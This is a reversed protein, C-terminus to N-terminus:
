VLVVKVLLYSHKSVISDLAWEGCVNPPVCLMGRSTRRRDQRGGCFDDDDDMCMSDGGQCVGNEPVDAVIGGGGGKFRGDFVDHGTQRADNRRQDRRKVGKRENGSVGGFRLAKSSRQSVNNSGCSSNSGASSPPPGVLDAPPGESGWGLDVEGATSDRPPLDDEPAIKKRPIPIRHREAPDGGSKGSAAAAGLAGGAKAGTVEATVTAKQPQIPLLSSASSALSTSVKEVPSVTPRPSAPLPGPAVFNASSPPVIRPSFGLGGAGGVGGAGIGRLRISDRMRRDALSERVIEGGLDMKVVPLPEGGGKEGAWGGPSVSADARGGGVPSAEKSWKRPSPATAEVGGGVSASEGPPAGGGITVTAAGGGAGAGASDVSRGKGEAAANAEALRLLGGGHEYSQPRIMAAAKAKSYRASSELSKPRNWGVVDIPLAVARSGRGPVQAGVEVPAACDKVPMRMAAQLPTLSLELADTPTKREIETLTQQIAEKGEGKAIREVMDGSTLQATALADLSGASRMAKCFDSDVFYVNFFIM